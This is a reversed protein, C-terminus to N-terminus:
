DTEALVAEPDQLLGVYGKLLDAKAEAVTPGEGILTSRIGDVFASFGNEDKEIIVTVKKSM